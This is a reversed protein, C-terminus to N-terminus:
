ESPADRRKHHGFRLGIGLGFPIISQPGTMSGRSVPRGNGACAAVYHPVPKLPSCETYALCCAILGEGKIAITEEEGRCNTYIAVKPDETVRCSSVGSHVKGDAEWTCRNPRNGSYEDGCTLGLAAANLPLVVALLCLTLPAVFRGRVFRGLEM